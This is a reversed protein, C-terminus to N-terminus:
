FLKAPFENMTSVHSDLIAQSPPKSLPPGNLDKCSELKNRFQNM